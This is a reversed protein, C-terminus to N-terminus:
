PDLSDITNVMYDVTPVITLIEKDVFPRVKGKFLTKKLRTLLTTPNQLSVTHQSIMEM